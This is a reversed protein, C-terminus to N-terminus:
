VFDYVSGEMIVDIEYFENDEECLYDYYDGKDSELQRLRPYYRIVDHGDRPYFTKEAEVDMAPTTLNRRRRRRWQSQGKGSYTRMKDGDIMVDLGHVGDNNYDDDAREIFEFPGDPRLEVDLSVEVFRRYGSNYIKSILEQSGSKSGDRGMLLSELTEPAPPWSFSISSTLPGWNFFKVYFGLDQLYLLYHALLPEAALVDLKLFERSTFWTIQRLTNGWARQGPPQVVGAMDEISDGAIGWMGYGVIGFKQKIDSWVSDKNHSERTGIYQEFYYNETLAYVSRKKSSKNTAAPQKSHKEKEENSSSKEGGENNNDQNEETVCDDDDIFGEEEEENYDNNDDNNGEQEKEINAEDDDDNEDKGEDIFTKQDDFPDFFKYTLEDDPLASTETNLVLLEDQPDLEMPKAFSRLKASEEKQKEYCEKWKDLIKPAAGYVFMGIPALLIDFVSAGSPNSVPCDNAAADEVVSIM